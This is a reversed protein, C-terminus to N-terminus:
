VQLAPESTFRMLVTGAPEGFCSFPLEGDEAFVRDREESGARAAQPLGLKWNERGIRALYGGGVMNALERLTDEMDDASIQEEQLGLFGAALMRGFPEAIRLSLTAREDEKSLAIRSEFDYPGVAQGGNEEFDVMTFFMTEVVESITEKVVTQWLSRM